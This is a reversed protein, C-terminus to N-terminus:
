TLRLYRISIEAGTAPATTFTLTTGSVSYDTGPVLMLGNVLVLLDDTSRGSTVTYGTTSGDGTYAQTSYTGSTNDLYRVALEAGSAPASVFTLTTGSITYDTTPELLVGNVSVLVEDVTFGSTISGIPTTTGDGTGTTTSYSLSSNNAESGITQFAHGMYAHSSCQYYLVQPTDKDVTITLHDGSSGGSGSTTVGTTYATVKAADEYLRFPHGSNSSDALDFKYVGPSLTLFAGEHGDLLYGNSSGTGYYYHETTKTAVTVTITQTVTADPSRHSVYGVDQVDAGAQDLDSGASFGGASAPDFRGASSNWALVQGNTISAISGVNSLDAISGNETIIKVWGGSDAVYPNDGGTDYAFMGEYSSATPFSGTNAYVAPVRNDSSTLNITGTSGTLSLNAVSTQTGGLSITDDGLTISSNALNANTIGATGSLNSNAINTITNDPGNITKNTLTQSGTLTAVTSDIAFTLQNSGVTSTIGTGGTAILTEGLSVADETSSDDRITITSNSLSSNAINTLTNDPGNITKNTLVQTDDLDVLTADSVATNFEALTGTLTNNALDISKNTLTASGSATILGSTDAAITLTNGSLTSTIATGGIIRLTEGNASITAVTSSDDAIKITGDVTSGDGIATYIEDFNLNVKNAGERLNDGTGDNALSGRNITLKAM